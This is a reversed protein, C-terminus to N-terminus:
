TASPVRMAQVPHIYALLALVSLRPTEPELSLIVRPRGTYTFVVSKGGEVCLRTGTEWLGM